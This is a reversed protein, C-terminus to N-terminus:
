FNAKLFRIKVFSTKLWREWDAHCNVKAYHTGKVSRLQKVKNLKNLMNMSLKLYEQLHVAPGFAPMPCSIVEQVFKKHVGLIRNLHRPQM